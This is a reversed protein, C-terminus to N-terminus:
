GKRRRQGLPAPARKKSSSKKAPKRQLARQEERYKRMAERDTRRPIKFHLKGKKKTVVM